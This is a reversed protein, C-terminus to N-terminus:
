ADAPGLEFVEIAQRRGRLGIPGLSRAETPSSLRDYTARTLVIQGAGAITAELRSATNVVDGLVTYERRRPSGIDGALAIGSNLAMRLQLPPGTMETNLQKMARRMAQATRVARSAHDPQDLPAGFVALLADGIFKDLTGDHEFVIDSMRGFCTNLMTAVQQPPMQECISTFGVIDAFLVTIDREQALFPTDADTGQALIRSVVAPSHYRGLRESRRTEENLRAALRAREIAVAAYNCLATLLELDATSFEEHLPTDLYLAGITAHQSWLPACMFSGINQRIISSPGDFRRDTQANTALMAVRETMVRNVITRSITGRELVRDDRTRVVRPVLAGTQEDALILFAREAKTSQITLRVVEELVDALSQEKVLSGAIESILKLLRGADVAPAASPAQDVPRDVIFPFPVPAHEGILVLQDEASIEIYGAVAGIALRDGDRLDSSTIAIGNVYTGNSSGIDTLTCRDGRVTFQAHWRSVSADPIVLDCSLARGVVTAGPRLACRLPQAAQHSVFIFM